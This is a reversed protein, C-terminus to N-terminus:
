SHEQAAEISFSASLDVQQLATSVYHRKLLVQTSGTQAKETQSRLSGRNTYDGERQARTKVANIHTLELGGVQSLSPRVRTHNQQANSFSIILPSLRLNGTTIRRSINGASINQSKKQKQTRYAPM